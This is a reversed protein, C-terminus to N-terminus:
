LKHRIYEAQLKMKFIKKKIATKTKIDKVVKLKREEEAIRLLVGSYAYNYITQEAFMYVIETGKEM